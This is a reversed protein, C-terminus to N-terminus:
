TWLKRFELKPTVKIILSVNIIKSVVAQDLMALLLQGHGCMSLLCCLRVCLCVSACASVCVDM